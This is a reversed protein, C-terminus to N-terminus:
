IFGNPSTMLMKRRTVERLEPHKKFREIRQPNNAADYEFAAEMGQSRALEDLKERLKAFDPDRAFQGSSTGVLVLGALMEPRGLAFQLAIFGGISHGALCCKKIDLLRLLGFVDDAFIQMSYEEEKSPAASKGHGRQDLAVVRYKPSLLAVQNRWDQTSGTMGHLFVIAEGQGSVEYNLNVGNINAIPM